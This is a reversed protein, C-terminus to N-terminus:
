DLRLTVNTVGSEREFAAPLGCKRFVTLMAANDPLVMAVFEHLGSARAVAILHRLLLAGIGRGQYEDVVMLAVEARQPNELVYRAGGVILSKGEVEQLAILAVHRAFDVNM